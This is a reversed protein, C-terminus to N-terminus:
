PKGDIEGKVAHCYAPEEHTRMKIVPLSGDQDLHFMSSLTVLADALQNEERPIHHFSVREFSEVMGRIYAQYPVLKHDRTEWEEKLQHIVLASDGYINLTKVKSEIAAKIGM